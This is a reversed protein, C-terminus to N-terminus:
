HTVDSPVQDGKQLHSANVGPAHYRQYYHTPTAATFLRRFAPIQNLLWLVPYAAFIVALTMGYEVILLPLAQNLFSLGPLVRTLWTLLLPVLPLSTLWIIAVAWLYSTEIAKTPCYNMCRMCSECRYSWYPTPKKKGVMRIANVPCDRACLGCSNCAPSAFWLKGLLFRGVLLYGCSIPVLLLGFILPIFGHWSRGGHLITNIFSVVKPQARDIIAQANVPGYGPHISTWNSPMDVGSAGCVKYGKLLLILVLLYVATGELGPFYVSGFKTGARCALVLASTGGGNPLGVAFRLVAWPSTFGHTPTILGLLTNQGPTFDKAPQAAEIPIVAGPIGQQLSATQLWTAVRYSNGT